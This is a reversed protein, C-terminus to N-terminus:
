AAPTRHGANRLLPRGPHSWAPPTAWPVGDIMEVEWTGDTIEAHHRPCTLVLNDIDTPGGDAWAVVHHIECLDGPVGCGPIVCGLDRGYLAQKQAPTALRVARGLRLAAGRDDLVLRRLRANCALLGLV